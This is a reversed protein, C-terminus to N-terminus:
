SMPKDAEERLSNKAKEMSMDVKKSFTYQHGKKSM